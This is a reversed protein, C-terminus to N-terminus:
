FITYHLLMLSVEQSVNFICLYADKLNLQPLKEKDRNHGYRIYENLEAYSSISTIDYCLYDDELVKHMWKNLFTQKEDISISCLIESIRQSTLTEELSPAHSKCWIGCHSLAGGQAVLYYAMMMIQLHTQPFCFKLLDGLCLRETFAELIIMPGIVEVSATIAPDKAAVQAPTLRKSPIFMGTIPDLKGVCIRKNRSQKKEKDWLSISEYVYTFGTNKNVYNVLCPM